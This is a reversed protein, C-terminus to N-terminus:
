GVSLCHKRAAAVDGVTLERVSDDNVTAVVKGSKVHKLPYGTYLVLDTTYAYEDSDPHLHWAFVPARHNCLEAVASAALEDARKNGYWHKWETSSKDAPQPVHSNVHLLRYGSLLNATEKIIKKHKVPKRSNTMWGNAKWTDIWKTLCHISYMSDTVITYHEGHVTELAKKIALLEAVQNSPDDRVADSFNRPDDDSFWVAYGAMCADTGNGSAAGDTYVFKEPLVYWDPVKSRGWSVVASKECMIYRKYSGTIDERDKYKEPMALGVDRTLLGVSIAPVNDKLWLLVSETAHTGRYRRKYEEVLELGYAIAYEYNGTSKVM